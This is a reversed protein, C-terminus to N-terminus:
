ADGRWSQQLLLRLERIDQMAAAQLEAADAQRAVHERRIADALAAEIEDTTTM